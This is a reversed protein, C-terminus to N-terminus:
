VLLEDPPLRPSKPAGDPPAKGVRFVNIVSADPELGCRTRLSACEDLDDALASMPCASLGRRTLELWIRYFSRGAEFWGAGQGQHLVLLAAASRTAGAEATALRGLGTLKLVRFMGPRFLMVAARAELFSMAMCDATLGDRQWDPHAPTFRLWAYLEAQLEPIELFRYSSRDHARALDAIETPADIVSLGEQTDALSRVSKLVSPDAQFRGRYSRRLTVFEALPERAGAEVLTTSAVLRYPGGDTAGGETPDGLDLDALDPARLGLGRCSLALSMGEFAAGLSVMADKGTPDAFPVRRSVDELLHVRGGPLFRWRAPQTNHASPSRNAEAVLALADKRTLDVMPSM